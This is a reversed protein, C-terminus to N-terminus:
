NGSPAAGPQPEDDNVETHPVQPSACSSNDVIRKMGYQALTNLRILDGTNQDGINENPFICTIHADRNASKYLACGVPFDRLLEPPVPRKSRALDEITLSDPHWKIKSMLEQKPPRMTIGGVFHRADKPDLQFLFMTSVNGIVSSLIMSELQDPFQNAMVLGVEYKRTESLIFEFSTTQFRQFEDTYIYFPRRQNVPIPQRRGCAQQLKSVILAGLLDGSERGATALNVLLIKGEQMVDYLDLQNQGGGMFTQFSASRVFIKMRNLIPEIADRSPFNENWTRLLDRNKVRSLIETRRAKDVLFHYIDLFCTDGAELLTYLVDRLISDMRPGWGPFRQLLFIIDGVLAERERDNGKGYSMFNIPIANDASIYIARDAQDKPIMNLIDEALDGHPDIVAIGKHHQIDKLALAKLLTSKGSGSMGTAYVHRKRESYPITDIILGDEECDQRLGLPISDTPLIELGYFYTPIGMSGVFASLEGRIAQEYTEQHPVQYPTIEGPAKSLLQRVQEAIKNQNEESNHDEPLGLILLTKGNPPVDMLAHSSQNFVSFTSISEEFSSIPSAPALIPDSTPESVAPIPQKGLWRFFKVILWIGFIIVVTWILTTKIGSSSDVPVISSELVLQITPCPSNSYSAAYPCKFALYMSRDTAPLDHSVPQGNPPASDFHAWLLSGPAYYETFQASGPQRIAVTGNTCSAICRITYSAWDNPFTIKAVDNDKAVSAEISGLGTKGSLDYLTQQATASLVSLATLVLIPFYRTM